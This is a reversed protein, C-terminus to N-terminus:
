GMGLRALGADQAEKLRRMMDEQARRARARSEEIIRQQEAMEREREAQAEEEEITPKGMMRRRINEEERRRREAAAAEQMRLEQQRMEERVKDRMEKERREQGAEPTEMIGYRGGLELVQQNLYNKFNERQAPTMERGREKITWEMWDQYEPFNVDGTRKVYELLDRQQAMYDGPTAIRPKRREMYSEYGQVPTRQSQGWNGYQLANM